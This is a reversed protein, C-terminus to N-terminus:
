WIRTCREKMWCLLGSVIHLVSAVEKMQDSVLNLKLARSNTYDFIEQDNLNAYVCHGGGGRTGM